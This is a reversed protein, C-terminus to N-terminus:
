GNDQCFVGTELKVQVAFTAKTAPIVGKTAGNCSHGPHYSVESVNAAADSADAIITYSNGDPNLFKANGVGVYTDLWTPDITLPYVGSHNASYDEVGGVIKRADNQRQTDRRGSQLQPLALFVIIFILGAIALVLVVEIITFGSYNSKLKYM